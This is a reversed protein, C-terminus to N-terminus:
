GLKQLCAEILTEATQGEGPYDARASSVSLSIRGRTSTLPHDALQESLVAVIRDAEESGVGGMAVGIIGYSLHGLEYDDRCEAMIMRSAGRLAELAAEQGLNLAVDSLGVFKIAMLCASRKQVSSLKLTRTLREAFYTRHPLGLQPDLGGLEAVRRYLRDMELASGLRNAALSLAETRDPGLNMPKDSALILAGRLRGQWFVPFGAFAPLGALGDQPSFIFSKESDTRERDLVLSQQRQFVWGALGSSRPLVKEKLRPPTDGEYGLLLYQDPRGPLAEALCCLRAGAFERMQHLIKELDAPSDIRRALLPELGVLFEAMSAANGPGSSARVRKLGMELIRGFQYLIKHSKDTFVYRQKSDVVLVGAADGLPVAMFSKISEDVKYFLLQRTDRDFQDINVPENNKFVYGVLGDGPRIVVDEKINRSLSQWAYLFLGGQRPDNLFLATTYADTTNSILDIIGQIETDPTPRETTM